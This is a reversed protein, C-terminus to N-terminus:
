MPKYMAYGRTDRRFADVSGDTQQDSLAKHAYRLLQLLLPQARSAGPMSGRAFRPDIAFRLFQGQGGKWISPPHPASLREGSLRGAEQIERDNKGLIRLGQSFQPPM